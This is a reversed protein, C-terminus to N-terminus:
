FRFTRRRRRRRRRRCDIEKRKRRRIHLLNSCNTKRSCYFSLRTTQHLSQFLLLVFSASFKVSTM